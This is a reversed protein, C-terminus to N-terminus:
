QFFVKKKLPTQTNNLQEKKGADSNNLQKKLSKPSTKQVIGEPTKAAANKLKEKNPTKEPKMSTKALNKKQPTEKAAVVKTM